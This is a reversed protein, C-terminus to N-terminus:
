ISINLELKKKIQFNVLSLEVMVFVIMVKTKLVFQLSILHTQNVGAHNKTVKLPKLNESLGNTVDLIFLKMLKQCLLGCESNIGHTLEIEMKMMEEESGFLGTANVHTKHTTVMVMLAFNLKPMIVLGHPQFEVKLTAM